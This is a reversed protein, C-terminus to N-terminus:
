KSNDVHSIVNKMLADMDPVPFVHGVGELWLGTAHPIIDVLKKGHEIPILRDATGHIVLTPTNLVKLKEYRTGSIKVAAQHQFIARMNIGKRKRLDYLVVEATEKIDLRSSGGASIHKAIREKILNKEGGMIRYKLLPIGKVMSALFRSTFGPLDPDGIFGSTMLLTLSAVRAPHRIAVEQAVMGGMSLGVIHAQQIRLADLVAMVDGALDAISYPNKFNWGEIWDSMGTGRQDYRVVQYGANVFRQLLSPSWELAHGGLATILLITAKPLVQPSLSEYWIKLGGSSAFGTQGAVVEPLDSGLVNEVIEDTEAPLKPGSAFVYVLLGVLLLLLVAIVITM